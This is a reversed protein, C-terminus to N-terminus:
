VVREFAVAGAAVLGSLSEVDEATFVGERKNIAQVVGLVVGDSSTLPFALLNRTKVGTRRDAERDFRSDAHADPLNISEGTAVVSGAIGVDLPLRLEEVEAGRSVHAQLNRRERDVIFITVLEADTLWAAAEALMRILDERSKTRMLRCTLDLTRQIRDARLRHRAVADLMQQTQPSHDENRGLVNLRRISRGLRELFGARRAKISRGALFATLDDALAAASAYRRAPDVRVCHLYITELDRPVDAPLEASQPSIKQSKIQAPSKGVTPRTTLLKFLLEGLSYVDDPPGPVDRDQASGDQTPDSRIPQLFRALGIDTVKLTGNYSMLVNAPTLNGHVIGLRHIDHM